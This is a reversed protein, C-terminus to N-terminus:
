IDLAPSLDSQLHAIDGWTVVQWHTQYYRFVNLSTNHNSFRRPYIPPIQLVHRFLAMIPGGHTVVAIREGLHRQAIAEFANIVRAQMEKSSEGEPICYDPDHQMFRDFDHPYKMKIEDLTHDAFIGVNRERLHPDPFIELGTAAAVPQATQLTRQLDSSYLATIKKPHFRQALEAAQVHGRASLDTDLHGQFRGNANHNTEAHRILILEAKENNKM